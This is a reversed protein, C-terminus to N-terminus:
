ECILDACAWNLELSASKECICQTGCRVGSSCRM